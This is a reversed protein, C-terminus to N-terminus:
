DPGGITYLTFCPNDADFMVACFVIRGDNGWDGGSAGYLGKEPSYTIQTYIGTKVEYAWKEILSDATITLLLYRGDPSWGSLSIMAWNPQDQLIVEYPDGDPTTVYVYSEKDELWPNDNNFSRVRAIYEGAPSWKPYGESGGDDPSERIVRYTINNPDSIDAATLGELGGFALERGDPSFSGGTSGMGGSYVSVNESGDPRIIYLNWDYTSQYALWEGDPSWDLLGPSRQTNPVEDISGSVINYIYIEKHPYSNVAVRKCNPSWVPRVPYFGCDDYSLLLERDDSGTGNGPFTPGDGPGTSDCGVPGAAILLVWVGAIYLVSTTAGVKLFRM